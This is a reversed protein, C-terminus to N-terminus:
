RLKFAFPLQVLQRVRCGGIEAPAFETEKVWAIAAKAFAEYYAELQDSLHQPRRLERLTHLEAGGSTDVIFQLLVRGEAWGALPEEPYKLRRKGVIVAPKEWPVNLSFIPIAFRATLPNIVGEPRPRPWEYSIRFTVSDGALDEPLFIREGDDRVAALARELVHASPQFYPQDPDADPSWTFRGDRNATVVLSGGLQRWTLVSDAPPLSVGEAGLASRLRTAVAQTFLDALPLIKSSQSDASAELHVPVRTFVTPPLQALCEGPSNVASQQAGVASLALATVALGRLAHVTAAIFLSRVTLM